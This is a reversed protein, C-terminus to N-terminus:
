RTPLRESRGSRTGKLAARAARAQAEARDATWPGAAGVISRYVPCGPDARAPGARAGKATTWGRERMTRATVGLATAAEELTAAAVLAETLGDLDPVHYVKM